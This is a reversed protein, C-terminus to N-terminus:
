TTMAPITRARTIGRQRQTSRSEGSDTPKFGSPPARFGEVPGTGTSRTDAPSASCVSAKQCSAPENKVQPKEM